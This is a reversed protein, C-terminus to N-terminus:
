LVLTKLILIWLPLRLFSLSDESSFFFVAQVPRSSCVRSLFLCLSFRLTGWLGSVKWVQNFEGPFHNLAHPQWPEFPPAQILVSSQCKKGKREMFSSQVLKLQLRNFIRGIYEGLLQGRLVCSVQPHVSFLLSLYEAPWAFKVTCVLCLNM